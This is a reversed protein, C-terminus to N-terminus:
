ALMRLSYPSAYNSFHIGDRNTKFVPVAAFLEFGLFSSVAAMLLVLLGPLQLTHPPGNGIGRWFV